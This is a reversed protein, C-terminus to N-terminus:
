SNTVCGVIDRALRGALLQWQHTQWLCYEPFISAIDGFVDYLTVEGIQSLPIVELWAKQALGTNCITKNAGVSGGIGAINVRWVSQNFQQIDRDRIRSTVRYIM